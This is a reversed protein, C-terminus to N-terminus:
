NCSTEFYNREEAVEVILKGRLRITKSKYAFIQKRETVRDPTAKSHTM